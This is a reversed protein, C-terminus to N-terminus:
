KWFTPIIAMSADDPDTEGMDKYLQDNGAYFDMDAQEIYARLSSVLRRCASCTRAACYREVTPNIRASPPSQTQSPTVM